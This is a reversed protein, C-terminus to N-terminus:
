RARADAARMHEARAAPPDALAEANCGGVWFRVTPAATLSSQSAARM